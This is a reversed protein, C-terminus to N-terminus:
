RTSVDKQNANYENDDDHLRGEELVFEGDGEVVRGNVFVVWLEMHDDVKLHGDNGLCKDKDSTGMSEKEHFTRRSRQDDCKAKGLENRREDSSISIPTEGVNM